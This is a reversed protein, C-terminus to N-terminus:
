SSHNDLGGGGVEERGGIRCGDLFRVGNESKEERESDDLEDGDDAPPRQDNTATTM